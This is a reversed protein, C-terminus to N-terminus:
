LHTRAYKQFKVWENFNNISVARPNSIKQNKKKNFRVMTRGNFKFIHGFRNGTTWSTSDVSDFHYKELLKLKTFGLGHIKAGRKHAEKIFWPFMRDYGAQKIDSNVIGGLAVYPYEDCM